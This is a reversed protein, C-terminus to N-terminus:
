VNYLLSIDYQWRKYTQKTFKKSIIFLIKCENDNWYVKIVRTSVFMKTLEGFVQNILM